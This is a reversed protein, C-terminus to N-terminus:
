EPVVLKAVAIGWAPNGLVVSVWATV